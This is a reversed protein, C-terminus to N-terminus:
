SQICLELCVNLRVKGCDFDTIIFMAFAESNEEKVRNEGAM